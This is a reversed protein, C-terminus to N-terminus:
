PSAAFFAASFVFSLLFLVPIACLYIIYMVGYFKFYSGLARFAEQMSQQNDITLADKIRNSFRMGYSAPFYCLAAGIAFYLIYFVLLFGMGAESEFALFGVGCFLVALICFGMGIYGLIALFKIWGGAKRLDKNISADIKLNEM